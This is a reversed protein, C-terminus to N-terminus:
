DEPNLDHEIALELLEGRENLTVEYTRNFAIGEVAFISAEEGVGREVELLVVGPLANKVATRVTEPLSEMEVAQQIDHIQGTEDVEIDYTVGALTAELEYFMMGDEEYPEAHTLIAGPLRELAAGSVVEPLDSVEMAQEVELMRGDALIEMDWIKEDATGVLNYFIIEGVVIEEALTIQFGPVTEKATSLVAEPLAEPKIEDAFCPTCFLRFIFVVCLLCNSRFM